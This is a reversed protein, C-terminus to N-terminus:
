EAEPFTVKHQTISWTQKNTATVGVAAVDAKIEAPTLNFRPFSPIDNYTMGMWGSQEHDRKLGSSDRTDYVQGYRVAKGTQDNTIELYAVLRKKEGKSAKSETVKPEPKEGPALSAADASADEAGDKTSSGSAAKADKSAAKASNSAAKSSAKQSSSTQASDGSDAATTTQVAAAGLLVVFAAVAILKKTLKM